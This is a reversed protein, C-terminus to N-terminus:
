MDEWKDALHLTVFLLYWVIKNQSLCQLTLALASFSQM